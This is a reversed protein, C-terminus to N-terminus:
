LSIGRKINILAGDLIAGVEEVFKIDEVYIKYNINETQFIFGHNFPEIVILNPYTVTFNKKQGAFIIRKSTIFLLGRDKSEVEEKIERSKGGGINVSFGKAIRVSAGAHKKSHRMTMKTEYRIAYCKCHCVENKRLIIQEKVEPLNIGMRLNYLHKKEKQQLREEQYKKEQKKRILENFIIKIKDVCGM